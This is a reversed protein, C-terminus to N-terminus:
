DQPTARSTVASASKSPAWDGCWDGIERDFPFCHGFEVVIVLRGILPSAILTQVQPTARSTVASASKSLTQTGCRSCGAATREYKLIM